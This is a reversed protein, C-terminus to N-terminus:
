RLSKGDIGADAEASLRRQEVYALLKSLFQTFGVTEAEIVPPEVGGM